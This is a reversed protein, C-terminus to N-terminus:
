KTNTWKDAAIAPVKLKANAYAYFDVRNNFPIEKFVKYSKDYSITERRLITLKDMKFQGNWALNKFDPWLKKFSKAPITRAITIHPEFRPTNFFRRLHSFRLETAPTSILKAYISPRDPHDFYGFGDIDVIVPPLSLLDRELKPILPDIWVPRKRPWQQLVIAAKSFHGDYEGIVDASYNKLRKVREVISEPPSLVILYDHYGTMIFQKQDLL